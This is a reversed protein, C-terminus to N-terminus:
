LVLPVSSKFSEMSQKKKQQILPTITTLRSDSAQRLTGLREGINGNLEVFAVVCKM